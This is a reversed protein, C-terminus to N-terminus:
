GSQVLGNCTRNHRGSYESSEQHVAYREIFHRACRVEESSLGQTDPAPKDGNELMSTALSKQYWSVAATWQKLEEAIVGLKFYVTAHGAGEEM